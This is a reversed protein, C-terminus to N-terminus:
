LFQLDGAQALAAQHAAAGRQAEVLDLAMVHGHHAVQKAALLANKHRQLQIRAFLQTLEALLEGEELVGLQGSADAVRDIGRGAEGAQGVNRRHVFGVRGPLFLYEFAGVHVQLM